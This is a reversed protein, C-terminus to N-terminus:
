AAQVRDNAYNDATEDDADDLRESGAIDIGINAAAGLIKRRIHQHYNDQHNSGVADEALRNDLTDSDASLLNHEIALTAEVLRGVPGVHRMERQRASLDGYGYEGDDKEQDARQHQVFVVERDDIDRCNRHDARETEVDQDAVGPLNRDTMGGEHRDASISRGVHRDM